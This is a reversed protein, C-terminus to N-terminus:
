NYRISSMKDLDKEVEHTEFDMQIDELIVDLKRLQEQAERICFGLDDKDRGKPMSEYTKIALKLIPGATVLEDIIEEIESKEM